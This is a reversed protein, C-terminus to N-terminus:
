FCFYFGSSFDSLFFTKLFMETIFWCGDIDWVLQTEQMIVLLLESVVPILSRCHPLITKKNWYQNNWRYMHTLKHAHICICVTYVCGSRMLCSDWEHSQSWLYSSTIFPIVFNMKWCQTCKCSFKTYRFLVHQLRGRETVHESLM